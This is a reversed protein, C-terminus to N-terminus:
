EPPRRRLADVDEATKSESFQIGFMFAGMSNTRFLFRVLNHSPPSDAVVPRFKSSGAAPFFVRQVIVDAQRLLQFFFPPRAVDRHMLSM